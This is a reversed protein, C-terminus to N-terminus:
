LQDKLRKAVALVIDLADAMYLEKGTRETYDKCMYRIIHYLKKTLDGKDLCMECDCLGAQEINKLCIKLRESYALPVKVEVKKKSFLDYIDAM